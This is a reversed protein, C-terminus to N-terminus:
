HMLTYLPMNVPKLHLAHILFQLTTHQQQQADDPVASMMPYQRNAPCCARCRQKSDDDGHLHLIAM